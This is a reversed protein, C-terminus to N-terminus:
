KAKNRKVVDAYESSGVRKISNDGTWNASNYSRLNINDRSKKVYYATSAGILAYSGCKNIANAVATHNPTLRGQSNLSSLRTNLFATLGKSAVSAAGIAMYAAAKNSTITQGKAALKAGKDYRKVKKENAKASRVRQQHNAINTYNTPDNRKAVDLRRKAEGTRIKAINKRSKDNIDLNMGYRKKGAETYTGDENQYRRVGWKQGLIGHHELYNNNM